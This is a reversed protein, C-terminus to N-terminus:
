ADSAAGPSDAGQRRRMSELLGHHYQRFRMVIQEMAARSTAEDEAIALKALVELMAAAALAVPTRRDRFLAVLADRESDLLKLAEADDEAIMRAVADEETRTTM